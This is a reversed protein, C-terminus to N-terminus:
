KVRRLDECGSRNHFRCGLPIRKLVATILVATLFSPPTVYVICAGKGNVRREEGRRRRGDPAVAPPRAAAPRARVVSPRGVPHLVGAARHGRHAAGDAGRAPRPRRGPRLAAHRPRARAPRLEVGAAVARRRHELRRVQRHDVRALVRRGLHAACLDAAARGREAAPARAAAAAVPHAARARARAAGARVPHAARARGGRLPLPLRARPGAGGRRRLAPRGLVRRRLPRLLARHGGMDGQPKARRPLPPHLPPGRGALPPRALLRPTTGDGRRQAVGRM